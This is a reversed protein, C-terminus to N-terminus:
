HTLCIEDLRYTREHICKTTIEHSALLVKTCLEECAPRHDETQTHLYRCVCAATRVVIILHYTANMCLQRLRLFRFLRFKFALYEGTGPKAGVVASNLINVHHSKIVFKIHSKFSCIVKLTNRNLLKHIQHICLSGKDIM